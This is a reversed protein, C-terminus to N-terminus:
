GGRTPCAGGTPTLVPEPAPRAITQRRERNALRDFLECPTPEAIAVAGRDPRFYLLRNNRSLDLLERQWRDIAALVRETGATPLSTRASVAGEAPESSTESHGRQEM